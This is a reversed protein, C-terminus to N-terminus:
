QAGAMAEVARLQAVTLEAARARDAEKRTPRGLRRGGESVLAATGLGIPQGLTVATLFEALEGLQVWRRNGIRYSKFPARGASLRNRYTKHAFGVVRSGASVPVAAVGPFLGQLERLKQEYFENRTM